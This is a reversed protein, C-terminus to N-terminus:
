SNGAPKGKKSTLDFRNELHHAALTNIQSFSLNHKGIRNWNFCEVLIPKEATRLEEQDKLITDV